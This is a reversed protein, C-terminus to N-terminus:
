TQGEERKSSSKLFNQASFGLLFCVRNLTQGFIQSILTHEPFEEEDAPLFSGLAVLLEGLPLIIVLSDVILICVCSPAFHNSKNGTFTHSVYQHLSICKIM